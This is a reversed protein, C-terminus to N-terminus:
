EVSSEAGWITVPKLHLLFYAANLVEGSLPSPIEDSNFLSYGIKRFASRM